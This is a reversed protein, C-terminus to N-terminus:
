PEPTSPATRNIALIGNGRGVVDDADVEGGNERAVLNEIKVRDYSEFTVVHEGIKSKISDVLKNFAREGLLHVNLLPPDGSRHEYDENTAQPGFLVHRCSLGLLNHSGGGENLYVAM